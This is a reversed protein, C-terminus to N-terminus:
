YQGTLNLNNLDASAFSSNSCSSDTCNRVEFSPTGTGTWTLNNWLSNNEADYIKSTYLGSTQNEDLAIASLNSNYSVNEFTAGAVNFSSLDNQSFVALGTTKFNLTYISFVLIAVFVGLSLYGMVEAKEM